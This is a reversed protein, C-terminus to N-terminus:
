AIFASLDAKPKHRKIIVGMDSHYNGEEDCLRSHKDYWELMGRRYLNATQLHYANVYEKVYRLLGYTSLLASASVLYEKRKILPASRTILIYESYKANEPDCTKVLDKYKKSSDFSMSIDKEFSRMSKIQMKKGNFFRYDGNETERSKWENYAYQVSPQDVEGFEKLAEGVCLQSAYGQFTNDIIEDITRDDGRRKIAKALELIVSSTEEDFTYPLKDIKALENSVKPDIHKM